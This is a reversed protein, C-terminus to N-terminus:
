RTKCLKLFSNSVTKSKKKMKNCLEFVEDACFRFNQLIKLDYYYFYEKNKDDRFYLMKKSSKESNFIANNYDMIVKDKIKLDRTFFAMADTSTTFISIYANTRLNKDLDTTSQCSIITTIGIHRSRYFYQKFIQTKSFQQLDQACDDMIILLRPQPMMIYNLCILEEDSLDEGALAKRNEHIARKYILKITNQVKEKIIKIKDEQQADDLKHDKKIKKIYHEMLDKTDEIQETYAATNKSSIKSFLKKLIKPTNAIEYTNYRETQYDWIRTLLRVAGEKYENKTAKKTADPYYIDYYILAEPICDTYSPKDRETPCLLVATDVTDKIANAIMKITLSKGSGSSGYLVTVRNAFMSETIDKKKIVKGSETIVSSANM